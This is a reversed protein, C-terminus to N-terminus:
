WFGMNGITAIISNIASVVSNGWTSNYTGPAGLPSGPPSQPIAVAVGNLTLSPTVLTSLVNVTASDLNIEDSANNLVIATVGNNNLEVTGAVANTLVGGNSFNVSGGDLQVWIGTATDYSTVGEQYPNGKSDTGPQGAISATLDGAAPAASYVLLAGDTGSIIVLRARVIGGQSGPAMPAGTPAFGQDPRPPPLGAPMNM